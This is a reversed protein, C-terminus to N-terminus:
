YSSTAPTAAPTAPRRPARTPKLTPPIVDTPPQAPAVVHPMTPNETPSPVVLPDTPPVVVGAPTSGTYAPALMPPPPACARVRGGKDERRVLEILFEALENAVNDEQNNKASVLSTGFVQLREAARIAAPVALKADAKMEALLGVTVLLTDPSQTEDLIKVLEKVLAGNPGSPESSCAQSSKSKPASQPPQPTQADLTHRTGGLGAAVLAAVILAVLTRRM